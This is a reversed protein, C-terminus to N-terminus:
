GKVLEDRVRKHPIAGILTVRDELVYKERMQELDIRKGGDGAILFDVKPHCKCIIPIVSVLLDVGKRYVLRSAVIITVLFLRKIISRDKRQGEPNPTFEQAM